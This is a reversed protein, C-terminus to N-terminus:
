YKYWRGKADYDGNPTSATTSYKRFFAAKYAYLITVSVTLAVFYVLATIFAGDTGLVELLFSPEMTITATLNQTILLDLRDGLWLAWFIFAIIVIGAFIILNLVIFLVVKISGNIVFEVSRRLADLVKRDEFVLATDYFFTFFLIPVLVGALIMPFIATDPLIGIIALTVIVLLMTVLVAFLIVMSALLVRFYYRKGGEVLVSLNGRGEKIINLGGGIFFPFIILQIIGIRESYFTGSSFQLFLTITGLAGAMLGLSWLVPWQRIYALGERLSELQM